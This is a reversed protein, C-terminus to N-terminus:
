NIINKWNRHFDFGFAKMDIRTKSFCDYNPQFM